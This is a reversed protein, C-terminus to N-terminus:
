FESSFTNYAWQNNSGRSIKLCLVSSVQNNPKKQSFLLRKKAPLKMRELLAARATTRGNIDQTIYSWRVPRLIFLAEVGIGASM